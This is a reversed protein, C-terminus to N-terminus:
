PLILVLLFFAHAKFVGRTTARGNTYPTSHIIIEGVTGDTKRVMIVTPTKMSGDLEM